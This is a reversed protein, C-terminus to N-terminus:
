SGDKSHEAPLVDAAHLAEIIAAGMVQQGEQNPHRGDNLFCEPHKRLATECGHLYVVGAEDAAEQYWPIRKVIKEQYTTDRLDWSTITHMITANPYLERLRDLTARYWSLAEDAPLNRDNGAGGVVLVHTVAPDVPESSLLDVFHGNAVGFGYGGHRFIKCSSSPVGWADRVQEPWPYDVGHEPVLAAYSDGILVLKPTTPKPAAEDRPAACASFLLVTAFAICLRACLRGVWHARPERGAPQVM